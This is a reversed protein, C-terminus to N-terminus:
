QEAIGAADNRVFAIGNLAIRILPHDLKRKLAQAYTANAEDLRNSRHLPVHLIGYSLANDPNM